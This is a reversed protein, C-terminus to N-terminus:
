KSGIEEYQTQMWRFICDHFDEETYLETDNNSM